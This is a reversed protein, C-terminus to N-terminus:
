SPMKKLLEQLLNVMNDIKAELKAIEKFVDSKNETVRMELSRMKTELVLIKKDQEGDTSGSGKARDVLKWIFYVIAISFLLIEAIQTMSLTPLQEM